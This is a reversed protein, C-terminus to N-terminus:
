KAKPGPKTDWQAKDLDERKIMWKNGQKVAPIIQQNVLQTIRSPHLGKIAAAEKITLM